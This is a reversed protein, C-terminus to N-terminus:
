RVRRSRRASNPCSGLWSQCGRVEIQHVGFAEIATALDPVVGVTATALAVGGWRRTKSLWGM